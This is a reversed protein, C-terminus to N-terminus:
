LGNVAKIVAGLDLDDIMQELVTDQRSKDEMVEKSEYEEVCAAEEDNSYQSKKKPINTPTSKTLFRKVVPERWETYKTIEVKYRVRLNAAGSM